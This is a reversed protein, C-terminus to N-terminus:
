SVLHGRLMWAFPAKSSVDRPGPGSDLVAPVHTRPISGSPTPGPHPASKGVFSNRSLFLGFNAPFWSVGATGPVWPDHAPPRGLVPRYTSRGRSRDVDRDGGWGVGAPVGLPGPRVAKSPASWQAGLASRRAPVAAPLLRATGGDRRLGLGEWGPEWGTEPVGATTLSASRGHAPCLLAPLQSSAMGRRGSPSLASGPSDLGTSAGRACGSRPRGRRPPRPVSHLSGTLRQQGPGGGLLHCHPGRGQGLAAGAQRLAAEASFHPSLHDAHPRPRTPHPASGVPVGPAPLPLVRRVWCHFGWAEPASCPSPSPGVWPPLTVGPGM